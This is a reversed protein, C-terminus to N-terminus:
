IEEIEYDATVTFSCKQKDTTKYTGPTLLTLFKAGKDEFYILLQGTALKLIVEDLNDPDDGCPDIIESIGYTGADIGDRGDRGAVGDVGDSGDNGDNGDNGDTGDRGAVGDVGDSGDTGDKGAIGDYVIISTDGCQIIAGNEARVVTCGEGDAGDIGDKGATGDKGETGEIGDSPVVPKPKRPLPGCAILTMLVTVTIYRM